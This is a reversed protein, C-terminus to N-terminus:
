MGTRAVHGFEVGEICVPSHAGAFVSVHVEASGALLMPGMAHSMPYPRTVHPSVPSSEHHSYMAPNDEDAALGEGKPAAAAVM